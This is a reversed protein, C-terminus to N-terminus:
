VYLYHADSCGKRLFNTHIIDNATYSWRHIKRVEITSYVQGGIVNRSSAGRLIVRKHLRFDYMMMINKRQFNKANFGSVIMYIKRKNMTSYQRGFFHKNRRSVSTRRLDASASSKVSIKIM